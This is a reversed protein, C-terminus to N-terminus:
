YKKKKFFISFLFRILFIIFGTSIILFYVFLFTFSIDIHPINILNENTSFFLIDRVGIGMFSLPLSVSIQNLFSYHFLKDLYLNKELLIHVSYFLVLWSAVSFFNIKLYRKKIHNIIKKNLFIKNKFFRSIVFVFLKFILSSVFFLFFFLIILFEYNNNINLDLYLFILFFILLSLLLIGEFFKNIMFLFIKNKIKRNRLYQIFYIEGVRGPTLLSYSQSVASIYFLQLKNLDLGFVNFVLGLRLARLYSFFLILIFTKFLIFFNFEKLIEFNFNRFYFIGIIVFFFNSILLFNKFIFNKKRIFM